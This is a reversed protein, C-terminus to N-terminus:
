FQSYIFQQADYGIGHAGFILVTVLILCLLACWLVPRAAVRTRVPAERGARSVFFIVAASALIVAYDFLSLGFSTLGGTFLEGFNPFSVMSWWQSFTTPVDRYCDLSRILGMLLFTRIAGWVGWAASAGVRPFRKHFCRYLPELERSVLIVLCNLLGWVIFNWGAGHWLGTLFWTVVTAVYVPFRLGVGNGMHKTLFASARQMPRAVSLPMFIYDTFWTGMTVHWRNWYEKTSRSSFPRLFNEKLRIGM